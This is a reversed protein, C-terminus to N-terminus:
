KSDSSSVVMLRFVTKFAPQAIAIDMHSDGRNARNALPSIRSGLLHQLRKQLVARAHNARGHDPRHGIKAHLRFYQGGGVILRPPDPSGHGTRQRTHAATSCLVHGAPQQGVGAELNM